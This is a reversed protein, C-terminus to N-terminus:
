GCRALKELKAAYGPDAAKRLQAPNVKGCTQHSRAVANLTFLAGAAVLAILVVTAVTITLTKKTM